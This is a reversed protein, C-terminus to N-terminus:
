MCREKARLGKEQENWIALREKMIQCLQEDFTGVKPWKWEGSTKESWKKCYRRIDKEDTRHKNIVREIPSVELKQEAM